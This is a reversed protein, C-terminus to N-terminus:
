PPNIDSNLSFAAKGIALLCLVGNLAVTREIFSM